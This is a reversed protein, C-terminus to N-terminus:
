KARDKVYALVDAITEMEPIPHDFEVMCADAPHVHSDILGPLVTKGGLDLLQTRPGKTKMVEKDSGVRLIRGDHVALAQHISNKKDVTVIKGHHLILDADAALAPFSSAVLVILAIATCRYM